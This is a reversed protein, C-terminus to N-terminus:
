AEELAWVCGLLGMGLLISLTLVVASSGIGSAPWQSAILQWLPAPLLALWALLGGTLCATPMMWARRPPRAPLTRLVRATFGDDPVAGSFETRLLEELKQDINETMHHEKRQKAVM